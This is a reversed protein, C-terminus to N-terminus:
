DSLLEQLRNIVLDVEGPQLTGLKVRFRSNRCWTVISPEGDLLLREFELDSCGIRELDIEVSVVDGSRKVSNVLSTSALGKRIALGMRNYERRVADEDREMIYKVAAYIGALEEKGVKMTRGIARNPNGHAACGEIISRKGIVLGTTQPGRIAKGGSAIIADVGLERTFYRFNAKPPISFAADVLVPVNHGHAIDVIRDIPLMRGWPSLTLVAATRENICAALQEETAGREDGMEVIVAGPSQIAIDEYFRACRHVIVENKMGSTDPLREIKEPDTGAMCSAVALAIGGAAGCSVYAAENGTMEAIAKGVRTQMEHLNVYQRSAEVMAEVACPWMISGGFRTYNDAANIFPRVGLEEYVDM